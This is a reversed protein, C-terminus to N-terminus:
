SGRSRTPGACPSCARWRAAAATASSRWGGGHLDVLEDLRRELRTMTRNACSCNWGLRSAAPTYGMRRLWLKLPGMYRDDAIFGPILLVPMGEGDAVGEGEWVPDRQLARYEWPARSERWLRRSEARVPETGM